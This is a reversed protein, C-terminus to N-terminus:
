VPALRRDWATRLGMRRLRPIRTELQSWQSRLAPLRRPSERPAHSLYVLGGSSSASGCTFSQSPYVRVAVLGIRETWIASHRSSARARLAAIAPDDDDSRLLACRRCFGHRGVPLSRQEDAVRHACLAIRDRDISLRSAKGAGLCMGGCPIETLFRRRISGTEPTSRNPSSVARKMTWGTASRISNM